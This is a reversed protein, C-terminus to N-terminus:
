IRERFPTVVGNDQSDSEVHGERKGVACISATGQGCGRALARVGRWLVCERM